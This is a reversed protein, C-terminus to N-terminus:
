TFLYHEQVCDISDTGKYETDFIEIVNNKDKLLAGPVYLTKQPGIDWYRGINFGNIWVNGHTFGDTLLFTDVGAKANFEGKLFVPM